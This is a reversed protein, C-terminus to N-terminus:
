AAQLREAESLLTLMAGPERPGRRAAGGLVDTLRARARSVRSKITGEACDCVSAADGCSLGAVGVLILAERQDDPLTDMARRVDDLELPAMANSTAVLTNEALHGDLQSLRWSRRRGSYFQNRLITFVWAKLNTGESYSARNAWASALAEQTLDEAETFDRCLSRAFARMHPILRVLGAQDCAGAHSFSITVTM